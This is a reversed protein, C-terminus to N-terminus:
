YLLIFYAQAGVLRPMVTFLMGTSVYEGTTEDVEEGAKSNHAKDKNNDATDADSEDSVGNGSSVDELEMKENPFAIEKEISVKVKRRKSPARLSTEVEDSISESDSASTDSGSDSKANKSLKVNKSTSASITQSTPMEMEEDSSGSESGSSARDSDDTLEKPVLEAQVGVVVGSKVASDSESETAESDSDSESSSSRDSVTKLDKSTVHKQKTAVGLSTGKTKKVSKDKTLSSTDIKRVTTKTKLKEAMLVRNRKSGTQRTVEYKGSRKSMM